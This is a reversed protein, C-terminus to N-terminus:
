IKSLFNSRTLTPVFRMETVDKNRWANDDNTITIAATNSIVTTIMIMISAAIAAMIASAIRDIRHSMAILRMM